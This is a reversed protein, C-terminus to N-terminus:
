EQRLKAVDRDVTAIPKSSPSLHIKLTEASEM